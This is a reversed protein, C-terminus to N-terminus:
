IRKSDMKHFYGFEEREDARAGAQKKALSIITVLSTKLGTSRGVLWFELEGGGCSGSEM